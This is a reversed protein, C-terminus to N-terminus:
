PAGIQMANNGDGATGNEVGIPRLFPQEGPADLGLHHDCYSVVAATTEQQQQQQTAPVLYDAEYAGLM